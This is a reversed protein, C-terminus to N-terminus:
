AKGWKIDKVIQASFDMGLDGSFHIQQSAPNTKRGNTREFDAFLSSITMTVTATSNTERISYNMIRGDFITFVDDSTFTYDDQLIARYIVVRKNMYNNNLLLAVTTTDVATFTLDIQGVRLDSSEVINGFYLFQGQALYTNTGSDPATSSDFDIDINTSTLYLNSSLHLEILDAPFVTSAALKTQLSSALQRPM